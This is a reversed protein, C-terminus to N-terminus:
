KGGILLLPSFYWTSLTTQYSRLYSSKIRTFRRFVYYVFVTNHDSQCFKERFARYIQRSFLSGWSNDIMTLFLDRFCDFMKPFSFKWDAKLNQMCNPAWISHVFIGKKFTAASKNGDYCRSSIRPRPGWKWVFFECFFTFHKNRERLSFLVNCIPLEVMCLSMM